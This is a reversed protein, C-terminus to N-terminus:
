NEPIVRYLVTKQVVDEGFAPVLVAEPQNLDAIANRAKDGLRPGTGLFEAETQRLDALWQDPQDLDVPIHLVQRNLHEGYFLYSRSSGFYAIADGAQTNAEIYSYIGGYFSARNAERTQRMVWSSAVIFVVCLGSCLWRNSPKLLKRLNKLVSFELLNQRTLGYALAMFGLYILIYAVITSLNSSLLRWTLAMAQLPADKFTDIIKGGWIIRDGIFSQNKVTDFVISSIVGTFSGFLSVLLVLRKPVQLVTASLAAAMGLVGLAPFGYRLNYGALPSMMGASIQATYPTNWYLFGSGLLLLAALLLTRRSIPQANGAPSRRRWFAAILLLAQALLALFPLQLRILVQVAYTKVIAFNTLDFQATLTTQQLAAIKPWLQSLEFDESSDQDVSEVRDSASDTVASSRTSLSYSATQQANHIYWFGGLFLLVVFGMVILPHRWQAVTARLTKLPSRTKAARGLELGALVAVLCGDYIVGPTKIGALMGMSALFLSFDLPNRTRHYALAFYLGVTFFTAVPLDIHLTTVHNLLMPISLVLSTAALSYFRAAGFYLSLLYTSFGLMAWALLMPWAVLFDEKFPLLCLVSLIHWNYPYQAAAPHQFIWYGAPDLLTLRGTQYWRAVAPLHFWLSDFDTIPQTAVRELLIVGLLLISALVVLESAQLSPDPRLLSRFWGRWPPIKLAKGLLWGLMFMVLETSLLGVLTLQHFSGLVIGLTIQLVSWVTLVCLLSYSLSAKYASEKRTQLAAVSLPVPGALLALFATLEWLHQLLAM